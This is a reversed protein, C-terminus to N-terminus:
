NTLAVALYTSLGKDSQWSLKIIGYPPCHGGKKDSKNFRSIHINQEVDFEIVWARACEFIHLPVGVVIDGPAIAM